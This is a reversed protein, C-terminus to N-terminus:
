YSCSGHKIAHGITWKRQEHNCSDQLEPAHSRVYADSRAQKGGSMTDRKVNLLLLFLIFGLHVYAFFTSRFM